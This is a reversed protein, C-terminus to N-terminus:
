PQRALWAKVMAVVAELPVEGDITLADEDDAPPELAALQSDLLSAPMFHERHLLREQLRERPVHLYVFRVNDGAARLRDRYRHKLASCAVVVGGGGDRLCRTIWDAVRDLWPDRDADNLPIGAQMRAINEPPHLEDADVFAWGLAQALARAMSSKGSGSVGMVVLVPMHGSSM